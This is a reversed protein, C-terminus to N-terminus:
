QTVTAPPCPQCVGPPDCYQAVCNGNDDLFDTCDDPNSSARVAFNAAQDTSMDMGLATFVIGRLTMMNETIAQRARRAQELQDGELQVRNGYGETM